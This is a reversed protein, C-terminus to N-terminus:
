HRSTKQYSFRCSDPGVWEGLAFLFKSVEEMYRRRTRLIHYCGSVRRARQVTGTARRFNQFRHVRLIWLWATFFSQVVARVVFLCAMDIRPTQFVLCLLIPQHVLSWLRHDAPRSDKRGTIRCLRFPLHGRCQLRLYRSWHAPM